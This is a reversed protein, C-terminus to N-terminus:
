VPTPFLKERMGDKTQVFLSVMKVKRGIWETSPANIYNRFEKAFKKSLFVARKEGDFDIIILLKVGYRTDILKSDVITGEKGKFSEDISQAEYKPKENLWDEINNM